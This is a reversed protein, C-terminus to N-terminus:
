KLAIATLIRVVVVNRLHKHVADVAQAAECRDQVQQVHRNQCQV